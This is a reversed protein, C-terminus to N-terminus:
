VVVVVVMVVVVVVIVAVVVKYNTSPMIIAMNSLKGTSGYKHTAQSAPEEPYYEDNDSSNQSKSDSLPPLKFSTNHKTPFNYHAMQPVSNDMLSVYSPRNM